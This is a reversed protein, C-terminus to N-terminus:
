KETHKSSAGPHVQQEKPSCEKPQIVDIYGFM